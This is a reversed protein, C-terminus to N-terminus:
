HCAVCKAPGSLKLFEQVNKAGGGGMFQRVEEATLAEGDKPMHPKQGNKGVLHPLVKEVIVVADLGPVDSIKFNAGKPSVEVAPPMPGFNVKKSEYNTSAPPETARYVDGSVKGRALTLALQNALAGEQATLEKQGQVSVGALDLSRDVSRAFQQYLVNRDVGSTNFKVTEYGLVTNGQVGATSYQLNAPMTLRGGFYGSYSFNGSLGAERILELVNAQEQADKAMQNQAKARAQIIGLIVQRDTSPTVPVLAYTYGAFLWYGAQYRGCSYCPAVWTWNDTRTYALGQADFYYPAAYTYPQSAQIDDLCLSGLLLLLSLLKKM